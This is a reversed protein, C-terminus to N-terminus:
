VSQLIHIYHMGIKAFSVSLREGTADRLGTASSNIVKAGNFRIATEAGTLTAKLSGM